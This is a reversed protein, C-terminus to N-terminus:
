LGGRELEFQQSSSHSTVRSVISGGATEVTAILRALAKETALEILERMETQSPIEITQIQGRPRVYCAGKRLIGASDSKCIVPYDNFEKVSILVLVKGQFSQQSLEFEVSPDAFNVAVSAVHDQHWTVLEQHDLGLVNPTKTSSEEVGIVVFGADRLNAMGLIARVTKFKLNPNKTSWSGPGKFEVNRSEGAIAALMLSDFEKNDM